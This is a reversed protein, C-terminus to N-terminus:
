VNNSLAILTYSNSPCKQLRDKYLLGGVVEQQFKELIDECPKELM